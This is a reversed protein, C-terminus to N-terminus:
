IVFSSAIRRQWLPVNGAATLERLWPTWAAVSDLGADDLRTRSVDVSVLGVALLGRACVSIHTANLGEVRFALREVPRNVDIPTREAAEDGADDTVGGLDQIQANTTAIRRACVLRHKDPM